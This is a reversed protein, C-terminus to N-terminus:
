HFPNRVIRPNRNIVDQPIESYYNEMLFRRPAQFRPAKLKEYVYTNHLPSGPRVVRYPYLAYLNATESDIGGDWAEHAIRWRKMDWVIHDEFALESRREIVFTNLDLEAATLSEPEFGARARLTHLLTLAEDTRGLEFAAEAANLYIEGLRFYIWWLESAIGRSSAGPTPDVYKRLYFGTNSVDQDSRRPGAAGTLLGGDTYFTGLANGEVRDYSNTAENWVMVGALIEIETGAFSAGPYIVTGYLRADKNEFIDDLEEYYIYDGDPTHTNLEGSSGDLYQFDEVLNLTPSLASSGLNDERISRPINEFTFWIRKDAAASFDKAWIVEPNGSERTFIQAFNEGLNPNATYLSYPGSLIEKSADLAMQYYDNARGAPIGVEGGPTTIPAALQNNYKAISGAYLMARSKLALATYRNARTQSDPNGLDDMIADLESAIFDYVQAETSRPVQLSTVDGSFDYDLQETVLPVGGMRKVHEFYVFARLFRLEAIFQSKQEEPLSSAGEEGLKEISLNIDRILGYDWYTWADRGYTVINNLYNLNTFGSWVAEDYAAFQASNAFTSVHAPLRDYFNALLGTVLKPDNWVQEDVLINPPDRELWEDQCAPASLLAAGYILYKFIKKM